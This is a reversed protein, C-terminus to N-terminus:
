GSGLQSMQGFYYYVSKFELEGGTSEQQRSIVETVLVSILCYLLRSISNGKENLKNPWEYM